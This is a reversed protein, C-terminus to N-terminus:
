INHIEIQNSMGLQKGPEAFTIIESTRGYFDDPESEHQPLKTTPSDTDEEHNPPLTEQARYLTQLVVDRSVELTVNPKKIMGLKSLIQRKIAELRLSDIEIPLPHKGREREHYKSHLHHHLCNPCM